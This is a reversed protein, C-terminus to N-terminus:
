TAVNVKPASRRDLLCGGMFVKAAMARPRVRPAARV